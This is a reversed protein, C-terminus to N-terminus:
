EEKSGLDRARFQIKGSGKRKLMLYVALLVIIVIIIFWLWLKGEKGILTRIQREEEKKEGAQSPVSIKKFTLDAKNRFINHLTIEVDDTNDNNLDVQKSEGTNIEIEQKESFIELVVSSQKIEKVVAMHKDNLVLFQITGSREIQRSVGAETLEGTDEISGEGIIKKGVPFKEPLVPSSLESVSKTVVDFTTIRERTNGLADTVNCVVLYSGLTQTDSQTLKATQNSANAVAELGVLNPRRIYVTKNLSAEVNDMGLCTITVEDGYDVETGNVDFASTVGGSTISSNAPNPATRDLTIRRQESTVINTRLGNTNSTARDYCEVWWDYKGESIDTGVGLTQTQNTTLNIGVSSWNLSINTQNYTIVGDALTNNISSINTLTLNCSISQWESTNSNDSPIINFRITAASSLTLNAHADITVTPNTNDFSVNTLNIAEKTSGNVSTVNVTINYKGNTISSSTFNFQIFGQAERDTFNTGENRLAKSAAVTANPPIVAVSANFPLFWFTVITANEAGITENYSANFVVTGKNLSNSAPSTIEVANLAYVIFASLILLLVLSLNSLIRRFNM